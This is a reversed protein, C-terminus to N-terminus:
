YAPESRPATLERLLGELDQSMSAVAAELLDLMADRVSLDDVTFM